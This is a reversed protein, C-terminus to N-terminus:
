GARRVPSRSGSATARTSSCCCRAGPGSSGSGRRCSGRTTSSQSSARSSRRCTPSSATASTAARGTTSSCGRPTGGSRGSAARDAGAAPRLRAGLLGDSASRLRRARPRASVRVPWPGSRPPPRRCPRAPRARHPAPAHASASRPARLPSPGARPFAAPSSRRRRARRGGRRPAGPRRAVEGLDAAQQVLRDAPELPELAVDEGLPVRADVVERRSTSRTEDPQFPTSARSSFTSRAVTPPM